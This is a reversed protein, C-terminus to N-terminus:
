TLTEFNKAQESDILVSPTNDLKQLEQIIFNEVTGKETYFMM